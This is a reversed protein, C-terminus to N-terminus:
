VGIVQCLLMVLVKQHDVSMLDRKKKKRFGTQRRLLSYTYLTALLLISSRGGVELMMVVMM